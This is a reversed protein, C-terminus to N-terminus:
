NKTEFIVHSMSLLNSTEFIARSMSIVLHVPSPSRGLEPISGPHGASAPLNKVM